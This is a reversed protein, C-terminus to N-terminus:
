FHRGSEYSDAIESESFARGFVCFEDVRGRLERIFSFGSEETGQRWAGISCRGFRVTEIDELPSVGIVKGNIWYRATGDDINLVTAVHTWRGLPVQPDFTSHFNKSIGVNFRGQRTLNWHHEGMEYGETNFFATLPEDLRHLLVWGMITIQRQPEPIEFEIRDGKREFLLSGKEPWRGTAWIGVVNEADPLSSRSQNKLTALDDSEFDFYFLCSSDNRLSQSHSLWRQYGISVSTKFSTYDALVEERAEKEWVLGRTERVLEVPTENRRVNVEGAFVHLESRDGEVMVGFETGLDEIEMEPTEIVFGQGSKDVVAWAKGKRLHMKMDDEISFESPGEIAVTVGSRFDLTIAGEILHYESAEIGSSTPSFGDAFKAEHSAALVAIPRTDMRAVGRDAITSDIYWSVGVIVMISTAIAAIVLPWRPTTSVPPLSLQSDLEGESSISRLDADVGAMLRFEDRNAKDDRLLSSLEAFDEESMGGQFYLAMLESFRDQESM